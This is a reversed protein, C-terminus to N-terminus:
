EMAASARAPAHPAERERLERLDRELFYNLFTRIVAVAGLHGISLWDARIATELIDAALQFTLGAVLCRALRLWVERRAHGTAPSFFLRMGSVFAQISGAIVFVAAMAQLALVAYETVVAFGEHLADV